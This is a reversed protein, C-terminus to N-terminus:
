NLAWSMSKTRASIQRPNITPVFNRLGVPISVSFQRFNPLIGDRDCSGCSGGLGPVLGRIALQASMSLLSISITSHAFSLRGAQSAIMSFYPPLTSAISQICLSEEIPGSPLGQEGNRRDVFDSLVVPLAQVIGKLRPNLSISWKLICAYKRTMSCQHALPLLGTCHNDSIKSLPLQHQQHLRWCYLLRMHCDEGGALIRDDM